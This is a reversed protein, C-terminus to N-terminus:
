VAYNVGPHTTLQEYVQERQEETMQKSDNLLEFEVDPPLVAAAAVVPGALPGRGAEDVGAVAKYGQAWLRQEPARTPGSGASGKKSGKSKSSSTTSKSGPQLNNQQQTSPADGAKEAGAGAAAAAATPARPPRGRPRKAPPSHAAEGAGAAAATLTEQVELKNTISGLPKM